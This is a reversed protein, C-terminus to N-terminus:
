QVTFSIENSSPSMGCANRAYVRAFVPGPQVPATYSTQNGPVTIVAGNSSGSTSGVELVYNIISETGDPAEWVGTAVRDALTHTFNRPANPPAACDFSQSGPRSTGGQMMWLGALVVVAVAVVMAVLGNKNMLASEVAVGDGGPTPRSPV